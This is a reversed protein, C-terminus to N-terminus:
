SNPHTAFCCGEGTCVCQSHNHPGVKPWRGGLPRGFSHNQMRKSACNNLFGYTGELKLSTNHMGNQWAQELVTTRDQYTRDCLHRRLRGRGPGPGRPGSRTWTTGSRIPERVWAPLERAPATRKWAMLQQSPSLSQRVISSKTKVWGPYIQKHAKRAYTSVRGHSAQASLAQQSVRWGASVSM